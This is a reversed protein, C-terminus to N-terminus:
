VFDDKGPSGGLRDIEDGGAQALYPESRTVFHQNGPHLVVRVDNGPLHDAFLRARAQHNYGDVTVTFQIHLRIVAQQAVPGSDDRHNM